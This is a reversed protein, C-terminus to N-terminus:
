FRFYLIMQLARSADKEYDYFINKQGMPGTTENRQTKSGISSIGQMFSIDGTPFLPEYNHWQDTKWSPTFLRFFLDENETYVTFPHTSTIFKCWYMNSHYGKFEPYVWPSEGTETNNYDKKWVGFQNGKMRNKWVRYPGNGMYEVGKIENEPFSFNVGATNTFYAAPFYHLEMKLIGTGNITWQLSNILSKKPYHSTVTIENAKDNQFFSVSDAFANGECLIPGNNFPIESNANTVKALLGTKKNFSYNIKGISVIRLSDNTNNNELLVTPYLENKEVIFNSTFKQPKIIPFSWTFIQKGDIGKATVYLVHYVYWPKPLIFQLAGKEGPKVNPSNIKSQFVDTKLNKNDGFSGLKYSFSCQNLNTFHFRNEINLKGDFASTIEKKEFYIPSWIEKIAYFSGEKEHHPGVIGDAARFKDTDLSDNKDKRVIAQDAFDWLFGGASLPNHWMKEWYDELGAGHGGDFQGHLFETPMVIERGNEYNGIGYNYERYHQTEIGGFLQWPHIVPRKQIDYINIVTDLNFNHGGENGNAWMIVSPHNADQYIMETVLKRGTTDDYNGHWGALEDIVFLGLSDCADLFHEDPPYHSCRVANMNMDKMLLVDEISNKKSLTRGTEPRFPSRNVGKMKVKVGNVYIGDRQKVKITRFGFQKTITHLQKGNRFITFIAKYLNPTESTWLKPKDFKTSVFIFNPNEKPKETILNGFKIGKSDYLQITINEPFGHSSIDAYFRGNAEANISINEIHKEPLVELYVPRFIGGFIWYDAKREANNVSENASHKAVTVELVNQKGLQLFRTIDYKFAYYAGQHIEGVAVGNIKVEADTMVGEFVLNINKTKWTLPANFTTKYLGKEKGRVSDKAFGYDYKGFGQLEWCSPVAITTWKNANMGNTCFFEWQKTDNRGTGSLYVKETQQAVLRNCLLCFLLFLIKNKQLKMLIGKKLMLIGGNMVLGACLWRVFGEGPKENRDLSHEVL